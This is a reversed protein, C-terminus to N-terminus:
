LAKEWEAIKALLKQESKRMSSIKAKGIKIARAIAEKENRFASKGIPEFVREPYDHEAYHTSLGARVYCNDARVIGETLARRTIWFTEVDMPDVHNMTMYGAEHAWRM